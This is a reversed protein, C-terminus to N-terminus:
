EAALGQYLHWHTEGIREWSFKREVLARGEEGLRVRLAPDHFLEIVRRVFEEPTAALLFHRRDRVPIGEVGIPTSVIAKRMALADLVKLRSGGGERFPCVFVAGSAVVTRLDEVFGLVQIRSDHSAAEVVRRDPEDGVVIWRAEPEKDLIRPWIEDLFYRSGFSPVILKKWFQYHM